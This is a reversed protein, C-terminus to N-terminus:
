TIDTITVNVDVTTTAAVDDTVTCRYVAQLTNNAGPTGSFTTSASTASTVTLTDGSVKTWAYTYPSTGGSATVVSATGTTGSGGGTASAFAWAASISASLAGASASVAVSATNTTVVNLEDALSGRGTITVDALSTTGAIIGNTKATVSNVGSLLTGISPGNAGSGNELEDMFIIFETTPSGDANVLKDPLKRAM